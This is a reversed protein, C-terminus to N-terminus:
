EKQVIVKKYFYGSDTIIKVFYTGDAINNLHVDKRLTSTQTYFSETSIIQGLISYVEITCQRSNIGDIALTFNGDSPNPFVEITIKHNLNNSFGVGSCNIFNHKTVSDTCSSDIRIAKLSISYQGSSNYLHEVNLSDSNLVTSDGFYWTFHYDQPNLTTNLFNVTFPLQYFNIQSASFDPNIADPVVIYISDSFIMGTSSIATVKYWTNHQLKAVPNIISDNSLGLSPSWSYTLQSSNGNTINVNLHLSDGCYVTDKDAVIYGQPQLSFSITSSFASPYFSNDISQLRATYVQNFSTSDIKIIAFTDLQMNGQKSFLRAGSSLSQASLVGDPNYNKGMSMNYSITASNTSDDTSKDWSFVFETGSTSVNFNSPVSPRTNIIRKESLNEIIKADYVWAGSTGTMIIDLDGDADYDGWDITSWGMYPLKVNNAKIFTTDGQNEYLTIIPHLYDGTYGCVIVDMDGDNDYDAWKSSNTYINPISYNLEEAFTNNGINKYLKAKPNSYGYDTHYYIDLKGDNNYDVFSAITKNFRNPYPFHKGFVEIFSNNGDNRYLRVTDTGALLLDLDGDNDYDGWEISPISVVPLIVNTQETFTINGSSSMGNNRYLKTKSNDAILLDLDGDNDYDGWKIVGSSSAPAISLGTQKSLNLNGTNKYIETENSNGCIALDLDGDNDYDGWDAETYHYANISNGSHQSFSNNGNNVYIKTIPNGSGSTYRNGSLFIDLDGDNDFDGWKAAGAGIGTLNVGQLEKFPNVLVEVSDQRITSGSTATVYYTTNRLPSAIPNSINSNSLGTTPSWSYSISGTTNPAANLQISEGLTILTDNSVTINFEPSISDTVSFPSAKYGNDIAQVSWYIFQGMQSCSPPIEIYIFTDKIAGFEIVKHYGTNLDSQSSKIEETSDTSGIRINYTLTQSLTISDSSRNWKLLYKKGIQQSVLGTPTTPPQNVITDQNIYIKSIYNTGVQGSLSIDLDGDNDLDVWKVYGWLVAPLHISTDRSFTNNGNNKFVGTYPNQYYTNGCVLLDLDGDNDCDGWSASPHSLVPLGANGQSTFTGNGNNKYLKTNLSLVLLDHFGDDNYDGWAVTSSIVQSLTINSPITFTSNGNNKYIKTKGTTVKTGTIAFDIYSDNDYDCWQVGANMVGSIGVSSLESFSYSSAPGNNTFIKAYNTNTGINGTLIIDLDGDNDYDGWDVECRSVGPLTTDSTFTNNGNNKYIRTIKGCGSTTGAILLDIYGDNNYDGWKAAMRSLAQFTISTQETFTGNGNNRYLKAVNTSSYSYGMVVVDLDGDNDYDGWENVGICVGTLTDLTNRVFVQAHTNEINISLLIFLSFIFSINKM